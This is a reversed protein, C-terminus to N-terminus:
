GRWWWLSWTSSRNLPKGGLRAGESQARSIRFNSRAVVLGGGIASAGAILATAVAGSM